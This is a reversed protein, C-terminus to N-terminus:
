VEWPFKIDWDGYFKEAKRKYIEIQKENLTNKMEEYLSETPYYPIGGCKTVYGFRNKLENSM